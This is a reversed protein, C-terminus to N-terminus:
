TRTLVRCRQAGSSRSDSVIHVWQSGAPPPEAEPVCVLPRERRSPARVRILWVKAISRGQM